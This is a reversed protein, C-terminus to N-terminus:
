RAQKKSKIYKTIEYEAVLDSEIRTTNASTIGVATGAVIKGSEAAIATTGNSITLNPDTFELGYESLVFSGDGPAKITIPKTAGEIDGVIYFDDKVDVTLGGISIDFLESKMIRQWYMEGLSNIKMIIHGNIVPTTDRDPPTLTYAPTILYVDGNRGSAITPFIGGYVPESNNYPVSFKKEWLIVGASSMKVLCFDFVGTSGTAPKRHENILYINGFNDAIIESEAYFEGAVPTQYMQKMWQIVGASNYKAIFVWGFTVAGADGTTHGVVYVNDNTDIAINTLYVWGVPDAGVYTYALQQMWQLTGSTNYKVVLGIINVTTTPPNAWDYLYACSCVYGNRYIIDNQNVTYGIGGLIRGWVVEGASNFKEVLSDYTGDSRASYVDITGYINDDSDITLSTLFEFSTQSTLTQYILVIGDPDYKVFLVQDGFPGPSGATSYGGGIFINFLTSVVIDITYNRTGSTAINYWYFKLIYKLPETIIKGEVSIVISSLNFGKYCTINIGPEPSINSTQVAIRKSKDGGYSMVKELLAFRGKAFGLWNLGQVKNGLIRISPFAKM